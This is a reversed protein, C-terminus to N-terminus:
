RPHMAEGSCPLSPRRASGSAPRALGRAQAEIQAPDFVEALAEIVGAPPRGELLAVVIRRDSEDTLDVGIVREVGSLAELWALIRAGPEGEPHRARM